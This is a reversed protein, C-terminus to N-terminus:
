PHAVLPSQPTHQRNNAVKGGLLIPGEPQMDKIISCYEQAMSAMGDKWSTKVRPGPNCIGYVTRGLDGLAYYQFITGGGDHILFLPISTSSLDSQQIIEPNDAM